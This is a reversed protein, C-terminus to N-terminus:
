TLDSITASTNGTCGACSATITVNGGYEAHPHLLAKWTVNEATKEVIQAKVSYKAAGAESVALTVGTAAGTVAGYVAAQATAGRQLVTHDTFVGSFSVGAAPAPPAATSEHPYVFPAHMGGPQRPYEAAALAPLLLALGGRLM